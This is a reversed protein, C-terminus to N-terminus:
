EGYCFGDGMFAVVGSAVQGGLVVVEGVVMAARGLAVIPLGGWIWRGFGVDLVRVGENGECCSPNLPLAM